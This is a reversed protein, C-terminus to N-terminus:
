EALGRKYRTFSTTKYHGEAVFRGMRLFEDGGRTRGTYRHIRQGDLDYFALVPTARVRNVKFAFDKQPMPEGDFNVMEVDGEIDISFCLFNERYYDQVASRNFVNDKMYHCFPCEDMEFFVFIGKKGDDRANELEETFDGFTDNFFHAYPDRLEASVGGFGFVVLVVTFAMLVRKM